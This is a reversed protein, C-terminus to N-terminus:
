NDRQFSAVTALFFAAFFATFFAAFFAALFGAFFAAFFAVFFAAFFFYGAGDPLLLLWALLLARSAAPCKQTQILINPPGSIHPCPLSRVM